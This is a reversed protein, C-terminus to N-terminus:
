RRRIFRIMMSVHIQYIAVIEPHQRLKRLLGQIPRFDLTAFSDYFNLRTLANFTKGGQRGSSIAEEFLAITDKNAANYANREESSFELHHIEDAQPPLNIM